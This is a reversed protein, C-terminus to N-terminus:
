SERDWLPLDFLIRGTDWERSLWTLPSLGVSMMEKALGLARMIRTVDRQTILAPKSAM